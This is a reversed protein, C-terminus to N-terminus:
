ESNANLEFVVDSRIIGYPFSFGVKFGKSHMVVLSNGFVQNFEVAKGYADMPPCQVAGGTRYHVGLILSLTAQTPM